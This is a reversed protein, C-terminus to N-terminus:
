FFFCNEQKFANFQKLFPAHDILDETPEKNIIQGRTEEVDRGHYNWYYWLKALYLKARLKENRSTDTAQVVRNRVLVQEKERM